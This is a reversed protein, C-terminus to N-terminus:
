VVALLIHKHLDSQVDSVLFVDSDTVNQKPFLLSLSPVRGQGLFMRHFIDMFATLGTPLSKPV